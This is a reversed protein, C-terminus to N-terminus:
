IPNNRYEEEALAAAAEVIADREAPPLMRLEAAAWRRNTVANTPKMSQAGTLTKRAKWM